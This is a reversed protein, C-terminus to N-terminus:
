PPVPGAVPDALQDIPETGSLGPDLKIVTCTVSLAPWVAELAIVTICCAESTKGGVIGVSGIAGAAGASGVVGATGVDEPGGESLMLEGPIVMTAVVSGLMAMLPVAVALTVETVQVFEVPLEPVAAPVVEHITGAMGRSSPVLVMMTVANSAAPSEAHRDTVTTM